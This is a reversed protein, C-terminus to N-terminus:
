ILLQIKECSFSHFNDHVLLVLRLHFFFSFSRVKVLDWIDEQRIRQPPQMDPKLLDM